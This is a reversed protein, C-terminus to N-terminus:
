RGTSRPTRRNSPTPNRSLTPSTCQSWMGLAMLRYENKKLSQKTIGSGALIRGLVGHILRSQSPWSNIGAWERSQM